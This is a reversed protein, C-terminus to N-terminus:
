ISPEQAYTAYKGDCEMIKRCKCSYSQDFLEIFLNIKEKNDVISYQVFLAFIIERSNNLRDITTMCIYFIHKVFRGRNAFINMLAM